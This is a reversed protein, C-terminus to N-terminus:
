RGNGGPGNYKCLTWSGKSKILELKLNKPMDGKIFIYDANKLNEEIKNKNLVMDLYSPLLKKDTKRRVPGFRYDTIMTSAIGRKWIIYYNQFHLYVPKGRFNNEYILATLKKGERKDPFLDKTFLRNEKQFDIFYSAWLVFHFLLVACLIFILTKRTKERYLISTFIIVSLLFLVSFREYLCWNGPIRDPLLLFCSLSSLIFINLPLININEKLNKRKLFKMAPVVIFLSFFLAILVGKIGEYLFYNDFMFLGARKFLTKIYENKYYFYLFNLTEGGKASDKLWWILTIISVPIIVTIEQVFKLFCKKNRILVILFYMLICFLTTIAHMTFILCFLLALLIKMKIKEPPDLLLYLILIVFPISISFGVLGCCVNYNYLLLFSLLTFWPNGKLKNIVM